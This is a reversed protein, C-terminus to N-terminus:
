ANNKSKKIENLLIDAANIGNKEQYKKVSALEDATLMITIQKDRKRGTAPRGRKKANKKKTEM